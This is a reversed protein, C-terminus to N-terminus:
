VSMRAYFDNDAIFDIPAACRTWGAIGYERGCSFRWSNGLHRVYAFLGDGSVPLLRAGRALAGKLFVADEALSVHPYRVTGNHISRRFVLTGGHVSAVFLKAYTEPDCKWFQRAGLEFFVTDFLATIDAKGSLLPAIQASLRRRGYWDDDDWHAIISGGAANCGRNRKEGISVRRGIRLYRIRPNTPLSRGLDDGGDDVIVMERHPYDQREFYRISQLLWDLRDRTPVICSVLQPDGNPGSAPSRPRCSPQQTGDGLPVVRRIRTAPAFHSCEDGRCHRAYGRRAGILKLGCLRDQYRRRSAEMLRAEDRARRAGFAHRFVYAGQAWVARFGSRVARATYDMEWCPGLGYGEDAAGIADVVARRVVYCFDALCYLPELTRWAMGYRTRLDAAIEALNAVSAAIPGLRGQM